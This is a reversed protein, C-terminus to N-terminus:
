SGARDSPNDAIFAVNQSGLSSSIKITPSNKTTIDGTVWIYGTVTITPSGTIELDCPIKKPGISVNASITYKGGSCTVSGGEEAFSEWEEIQDDSIPLPAIPQDPSNPHLTGNVTVGANKNVYYADKDITTQGSNELLNHAYATGTAHIGDILGSSGASVVDGYIMNSSGIIPGASFVNGTISSSNELTFGGQGSQVGYHFSVGTGFVIDAKM